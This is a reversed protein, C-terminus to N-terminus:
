EHGVISKLTNMFEDNARSINVGSRVDGIKLHSFTTDIMITLFENESEIAIKHADKFESNLLVTSDKTANKLAKLFFDVEQPSLEKTKKSKQIGEYESDIMEFLTVESVKNLMNEQYDTLLKSLSQAVVPNVQEMKKQKDQSMCSISLLFGTLLVALITLSRFM